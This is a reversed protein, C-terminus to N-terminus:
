EPALYGDCLRPDADPPTVNRARASCRRGSSTVDAHAPEVQMGSVIIYQYCESCYTDGDSDILLQPLSMVEGRVTKTM